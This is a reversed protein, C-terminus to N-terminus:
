KADCRRMAWPIWRQACFDNLTWLWHPQQRDYQSAYDNVFCHIRWWIYYYCPWNEVDMM